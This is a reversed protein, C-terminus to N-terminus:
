SGERNLPITVTFTSGKGIESKVTITGGQAEVLRKCVALGLGQGRAKTTFFPDFIKKLNEEAIGCGTDEVSITTLQPQILATITLEGGNPMAQAANLFLNSLVRRLLVPDLIAKRPDGRNMNSVKVTGPIKVSAIVERILESLNTEILESGVPRTYDQLDSVIKDMYYVQDNLEELLGFAKNREEVGGSSLLKKVLYVITATAQLPNRLDHGVMAAAEGVAALRKSKLLEERMRRREGVERTVGVIIVTTIIIPPIYPLYSWKVALIVPGDIKSSATQSKSILQGNSYWGDFGDTAERYDNWPQTQNVSFHLVTGANYWGSELTSESTSSVYYQTVYSVEM